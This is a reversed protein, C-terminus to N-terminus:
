LSSDGLQRWAVSFESAVYTCTLLAHFFDVDDNFSLLANSTSPTLLQALPSPAQQGSGTCAIHIASTRRRKPHLSKRKVCCVVSNQADGHSVTCSAENDNSLAALTWDCDYLGCVNSKSDASRGSPTNCDSDAILYCTPSSPIPELVLGLSDPENISVELAADLCAASKMSVPLLTNLCLTVRESKNARSNLTTDVGSPILEELCLIRKQQALASVSSDREAPVVASRAIVTEIRSLDHSELRAIRADMSSLRTAIIEAMGTVGARFFDQLLQLQKPSFESGHFCGAQGIMWDALLSALGAASDIWTDATM